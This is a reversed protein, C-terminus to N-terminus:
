CAGQRQCKCLDETHSTGAVGWRWVQSCGVMHCAQTHSWIGKGYRRLDHVIYQKQCPIKKDRAYLSSPKLQTADLFSFLNYLLNLDLYNRWEFAFGKGTYLSIIISVDWEILIKRFHIIDEILSCIQQTCEDGFAKLSEAIILGYDRGRKVLKIVKIVLELPVEPLGSRAHSRHFLRPRLRAWEPRTVGYTLM